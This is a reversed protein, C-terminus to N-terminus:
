QKRELLTSIINRSRTLSEDWAREFITLMEDGGMGPRVTGVQYHDNVQFYVGPYIRASPEVQVRIYGQFKDPRQGEVTLSRMDPTKLIDQWPEKPALRHGFAHWSEKSDMRFHMDTNIGLKHLPTYQLLKFTGLVLDRLVRYYPQQATSVMFRERTVQLALWELSFSVVEPHIIDINAEDAEQQRILGQAAFWAPQFIKPNFDGLLVISVGQIEPLHASM